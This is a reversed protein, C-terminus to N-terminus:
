SSTLKMAASNMCYRKGTPAPGDDFVHGLHGGCRACVVETRTTFFGVDQRYIVNEAHVPKSFSPWGCGSDFKDDSQFLALACGACVYVGKEKTEFYQNKFARETAKERLIKFQEPTLREAWQRESLNMKQGDFKMDAMCEEKQANTANSLATEDTYSLCTLLSLISLLLIQM